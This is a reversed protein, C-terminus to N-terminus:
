FAIGSCTSVDEYIKSISSISVSCSEALLLKNWIIKKEYDVIM